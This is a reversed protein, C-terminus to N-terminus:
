SIKKKFIYLLDNVNEDLLRNRYKNKIYSFSSFTREIEANSIPIVYFFKMLRVLNPFLAENDLLYKHIKKNFNKEM